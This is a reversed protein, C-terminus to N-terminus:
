PNSGDGGVKPALLMIVTKYTMVVVKGGVVCLTTMGTIFGVEGYIFSSYLPFFSSGCCM